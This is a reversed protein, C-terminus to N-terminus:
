HDHSGAAAMGAGAAMGHGTESAARVPVTLEVPELGDWQLTLQFRDGEALPRLLDLLMVHLGGPRFTVEEGPALEVEGAPEMRMVQQVSGDPGVRDELLSVHIETRGAADAQAGLLRVTRDGRNVLSFYAASTGGELGPRAWVDSVEVAGAGGEEEAAEDWPEDLLLRLDAALAEPSSEFPEQLRLRGARDIVYSSATHTVWYGVPSEEAPMREVFVGYDALVPELDEPSAWLGLFDPDVAGVYAALREPSDYDPDVTVFLFQVDRAEDGLLLKARKFQGLTAPCVDPCNTYGFFLVVVQGRRDALTFPRRHHDIMTFDPAPLPPDIARGSFGAAAGSFKVSDAEDPLLGFRGAGFAVAAAALLVVLGSLLLIRKGTALVGSM